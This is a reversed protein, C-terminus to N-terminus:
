SGFVNDNASEGNVAKEMGRKENKLPLRQGM